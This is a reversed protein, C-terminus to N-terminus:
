QLEPGRPPDVEDLAAAILRAANPLDFEDALTLAEALLHRVEAIESTMRSGSHVDPKPRLRRADVALSGKLFPDAREGRPRRSCAAPYLQHVEGLRYTAEDETITPGLDRVQRAAYPRLTAVRRSAGADKRAPLRGHM